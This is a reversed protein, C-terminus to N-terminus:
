CLGAVANIGCCFARRRRTAVDSCAHRLPCLSCEGGPATGSHAHKAGNAGGGRRWAAAVNAGTAAANASRGNGWLMATAGAKFVLIPMMGAFILVAATVLGCQSEKALQM